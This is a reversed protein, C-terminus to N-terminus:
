ARITSREGAAIVARVASHCVRRRASIGLHLRSATGADDRQSAVVSVTKRLPGLTRHAQEFAQPRRSSGDRDSVRDLDDWGGCGM